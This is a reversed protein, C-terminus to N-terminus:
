KIKTKTIQYLYNLKYEIENKFKYFDENSISNDSQRNSAQAQAVCIIQGVAQIFNGLINLEQLTLNITCLTGVIGCLAAM